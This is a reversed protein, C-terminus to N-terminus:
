PVAEEPAPLLSPPPSPGLQMATRVLTWLGNDLDRQLRQQTFADEWLWAAPIQRGDVEQYRVQQWPGFHDSFRTLFDRPLEEAYSADFWLEVQYLSGRWLEYQVKAVSADEGGDCSYRALPGTLPEQRAVSQPALLEVAQSGAGWWLKGYGPPLPEFREAGSAGLLLCLAPLLLVLL